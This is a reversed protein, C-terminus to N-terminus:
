QDYVFPVIIIMDYYAEVEKDLLEVTSSCNDLKSISMQMFKCLSLLIDAQGM